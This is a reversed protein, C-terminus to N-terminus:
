IYVSQVNAFTRYTEHLAETVTAVRAAAPRGTVLRGRGCFLAVVSGDTVCETLNEDGSKM